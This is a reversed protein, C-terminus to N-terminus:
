LAAYIGKEVRRWWHGTKYLEQPSTFRYDYVKARLFRPGHEVGAFPNKELLGSVEKNNDKLAQMLRLFWLNPPGNESNLAEFWLQWDLRPQYPAVLPPPRDVPGVKYRFVYEQFNEGDESGEIIIEPRSTTMSAFLGYSNAMGYSQCVSYFARVPRPLFSYFESGFATTGLAVTSAFFQLLAFSLLVASLLPPAKAQQPVPREPLIKSKVANIAPRLIKDVAPLKAARHVQGDSFLTVTLAVTLLNFFGYNGNLAILLQLLLFCLAAATRLKGSKFIFFPLMVEIILTALCSLKNIIVPLSHSFFALPTPLPQTEFHYNLATLTLWTSHAADETFLKVLGSGFMLRFLLWSLLVFGAKHLRKDICHARALLISIFGSELLLMDWQYSLFDQGVSVLSLYLLYLMPLCIWEGIGVFLLLSFFTGAWALNSLSFLQPQWFYLSPGALLTAERFLWDTPTLGGPGFLAEMQPLLSTFAFLYSLALLRLYLTHM